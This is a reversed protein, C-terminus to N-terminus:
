RLLYNTEMGHHHRWQAYYQHIHALVGGHSAKVENEIKYLYIRHIGIDIWAMVELEFYSLVNAPLPVGYRESVNPALDFEMLESMDKMHNKGLAYVERFSDCGVKSLVIRREKEVQQQAKGGIRLSSMYLQGNLKGHLDTPFVNLQKPTGVSVLAITRPLSYAIRVMDHLEGPLNVNGPKPKVLHERLRNIHQYPSSLFKHQGRIAQYLRVCEFGRFTEGIPSLIMRAVVNRASPFGRWNSDPRFAQQHFQLCLDGNGLVRGEDHFGLVVPKYGVFIHEISIPEHTTSLTVVTQLPNPFRDGDICLYQQPITLGFLWQRLRDKIKM